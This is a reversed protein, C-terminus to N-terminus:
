TWWGCVGVQWCAAFGAVGNHLHQCAGTKSSGMACGARVLQHGNREDRVEIGQGIACASFGGSSTCASAPVSFYTSYSRM